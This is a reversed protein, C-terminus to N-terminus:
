NCIRLLFAGQVHNDDDFDASIFGVVDTSTIEVIELFGSTATYRKGEPLDFIVDATNGSNNIYPLNYNGRQAPFKVILHSEAVAGQVRTCADDLEEELILGEFNGSLFSYAANGSGYIWEEGALEGKLPDRDPNFNNVDDDCSIIFSVVLLALFVRYIKM